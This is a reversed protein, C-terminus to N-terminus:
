APWSIPSSRRAPPKAAGGARRRGGPTRCRGRSAMYRAFLDRVIAEAGEMVRMVRPHRYVNAFLYAKLGDIEARREQSAAIVPRGAERVDHLSRERLAALRARSERVVDDIMATIMRRNVEYIM